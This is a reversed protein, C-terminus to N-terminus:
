QREHLGRLYRYLKRAAALPLRISGSHEQVAYEIRSRVMWAAYLTFGCASDLDYRQLAHSLGLSGAEVLRPLALGRDVCDQALCLVLLRYRELLAASAGGRDARALEILRREEEPRPREYGISELYHLVATATSACKMPDRYPWARVSDRRQRREDSRDSMRRHM